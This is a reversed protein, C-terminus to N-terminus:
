TRETTAFRHENAKFLGIRMLSEETTYGASALDSLIFGNQWGEPPSSRAIGAITEIEDATTLGHRVLSDLSLSWYPNFSTFLGFMSAGRVIAADQAAAVDEYWPQAQAAQQSAATRASMRDGAAMMERVFDDRTRTRLDRVAMVFGVVAIVVYAGTVADPAGVQNLVGLIILSFVVYWVLRPM